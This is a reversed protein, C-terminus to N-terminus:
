MGPNVNSLCGLHLRDWDSRIESQLRTEQPCRRIRGIPFSTAYKIQIEPSNNILTTKPRHLRIASAIFVNADVLQHHAFQICAPLVYELRVERNLVTFSFSLQSAASGFYNTRLATYPAPRSQFFSASIHKESINWLRNRDNLMIYDSRVPYKRWRCMWVSAEMCAMKAAAFYVARYKQM